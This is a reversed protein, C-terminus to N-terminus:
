NLQSLNMKLKEKPPYPGEYIGAIKEALLEHALNFDPQIITGVPYPKNRYPHKWSKKLILRM